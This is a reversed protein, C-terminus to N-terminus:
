SLIVLPSHSYEASSIFHFLQASYQNGCYPFGLPRVFFKSLFNLVSPLLQEVLVLKFQPSLQWPGQSPGLTAVPPSEKGHLSLTSCHTPRNRPHRPSPVLTEQWSTPPLCSQLRTPLHHAIGAYGLWSWGQSQGPHTCKGRCCAAPPFQQPCGTSGDQLGLAPALAGPGRGLVRGLSGWQEGLSM